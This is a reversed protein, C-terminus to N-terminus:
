EVGTGWLRRVLRIIGDGLIGAFLGLLVSGGISFPALIGGLFESITVGQRLGFWIVASALLGGVANRALGSGSPQLWARAIATLAGIVLCLILPWTPFAFRVQLVRANAQYPQSTVHIQEQGVTYSRAAATKRWEGKPITLTTPEVLSDPRLTNVLAIQIDVPSPVNRGSRADVVTATVTATSSGDAPLVDPLIALDLRLSDDECDIPLARDHSVSRSIGAVRVRNGAKVRTEFLPVQEPGSRGKPILVTTSSLTGGDPELQVTLDDRLSALVTSGRRELLRLRVLTSWSGGVPKARIPSSSLALHIRSPAAIVPNSAATVEFQTRGSQVGPAKAELTGLRPVRQVLFTTSTEGPAFNLHIPSDPQTSASVQVRTPMDTSTAGATPILRARALVSDGELAGEVGVDFEVRWGPALSASTHEPRPAFWMRSVSLAALLVLGVVLAWLLKTLRM